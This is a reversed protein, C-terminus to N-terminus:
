KTADKDFVYEKWKKELEELSQGYVSGYDLTESQYLNRLREDGYSKFLYDFFSGAQIFAIEREPAGIDKFIENNKRLDVLPILHKRFYVIQEDLPINEYNPFCQDTGFREQFHVAIGESFFRNDDHNALIHTIEHVICSKKKRIHRAVLSVHGGWTNDIGDKKIKIVIRDEQVGLIPSVKAVAMSAEEQVRLIDSESIKSDGPKIVIQTDGSEFKHSTACGGLLLGNALLIMALIISKYGM